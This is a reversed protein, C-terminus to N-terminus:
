EIARRRGVTPTPTLVQIRGHTRARWGVWVFWGYETADSTFPKGTEPNIGHRFQPRNPLVYVDPPHSRFFAFRKKSALFNLRLLMVVAGDGTLDLSHRIFDYALSYPPNGIVVDPRTHFSDPKCGLYDGIVVEDALPELLERCEERLEVALWKPKTDGLKENVAKIIAGDGAGPDLWVNGGPRCAELFRHITWAPTIYADDPLRVDSRGTASM